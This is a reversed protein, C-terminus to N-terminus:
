PFLFQYIRTDKFSGLYDFGPRDGPEDYLGDDGVLQNIELLLYRARYQKALNLTTDLDGYPISISERGNAAFYGPSNNVMVVDGSQAGFERLILELEMYHRPSNSWVPNTLDSGVVRTYFVVVAIVLVIGLVGYRFVRQAQDIKWDRMEGIWAIIQYLGYPALAWWMTQLAAGSHFFGGRAGSYPFTITMVFLTLCWALVAVQIRRDSRLHWLSTLVMPVLLIGGQVALTTQLNQGFAWIRDQIIKQMGSAFWRGATLTQAPYIFIEDYNTLWLTRFGGPAFLAGFVRWNRIMWPGMILLYGFICICILLSVYRLGGIEHGQIYLVLFAVALWLIGDARTLHMLGALVGMLVSALFPYGPTLELWTARMLLFFITGFLMYLVFSDTTTLYPIYFGPVVAFLGALKSLDSKETIAFSLAATLPPISAYLILIPIRASEFDISGLLRMGSAALISVLPMWYGHSPHPLGEPDDLYNWLIEETFGFGSALRVAGSYYYEADMYGPVTQFHSIFLGVGLGLLALWFYTARSM